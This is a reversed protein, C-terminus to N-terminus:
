SSIHEVLLHTLELFSIHTQLPLPKHVDVKRIREEETFCAAEVDGLNVDSLTLGGLSLDSNKVVLASTSVGSGFLKGNTQSCTPQDRSGESSLQVIELFLLDSFLVLPLQVHESDVPYALTGM